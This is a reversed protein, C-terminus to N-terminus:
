EVIRVAAAPLAHALAYGLNTRTEILKATADSRGLAKTLQRRLESVLDRVAAPATGPSFIERYIEDASVIPRGADLRRALLRLLQYPRAPLKGERGDLRVTLTASELVLRLKATGGDPLRAIDFGLPRDPAAAVAVGRAAAHHIGQRALSARLTEPMAPGILLIPGEPDVLRLAGVLGPQLMASRTPAAALVRGDPLAGMRWLGAQVEEVVGALGVASATEAVLVPLAIRFTLLDDPALREDRRHDLRCAAVPQGDIWRVPRDDAGCGCGDCPDWAALREGHVLVGLELLREFAAADHPAHPRGFVAAPEGAESLRWLLAPLSEPM